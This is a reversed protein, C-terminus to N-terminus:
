GIRQPPRGGDRYAILRWPTVVELAWVETMGSEALTAEVNHAYVQHPLLLRYPTLQYGRTALIIAGARTPFTLPDGFGPRHGRTIDPGLQM